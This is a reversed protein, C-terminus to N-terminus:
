GLAFTATEIEANVLGKQNQTYSRSSLEASGEEIPRGVNQRLCSSLVLMVVFVFLANVSKCM